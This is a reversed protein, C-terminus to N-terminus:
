AEEDWRQRLQRLIKRVQGVSLRLQEAIDAKPLGELRLEVIRISTEDEIHLSAFKEALWAALDGALLAAEPGPAAALNQPLGTEDRVELAPDRRRRKHWRIEDTLTRHVIKTLVKKVDERNKLLPYEQRRVGTLFSNFAANIVAQSDIRARLPGSIRQRIQRLLHLLCPELLSELDRPADDDGAAQRRVAQTIDGTPESM